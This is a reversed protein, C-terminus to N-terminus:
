VEKFRFIYTNTVSFSFLYQGDFILNSEYGSLSKNMVFLKSTALSSLGIDVIPVSGSDFIEDLKQKFDEVSISASGERLSVVNNGDTIQSEISYRDPLITQPPVTTANNKTDPYVKSELWANAGGSVEDDEVYLKFGIHSADEKNYESPIEISVFPKESTRTIEGNYFMPFNLEATKDKILVGIRVIPLKGEKWIDLLASHLSTYNSVAPKQLLVKTFGSTEIPAAINYGWKILEYAKDVGGGEIVIDKLQENVWNKDAYASLDDATVYKGKPQYKNLETADAKDALLHDIRDKTYYNDPNFIEDLPVSIPKKGADVNFVITLNGDEITVDDVMGDVIFPSCDISFLTQKNNGLFNIHHTTNDYKGDVVCKAIAARLEADAISLNDVKKKYADSFDNTSLGKGQEKDVKTDLAKNVDAVQKVLEAFALTIEEKLSSFPIWYNRDTLEIGSPVPKRSIYTGFVGQREVITLKDYVKNISWYGKEVTVAVKGLKDLYLEM